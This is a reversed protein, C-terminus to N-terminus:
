GRYRNDSIPVRPMLRIVPVVDVYVDVQVIQAKQRGGYFFCFFLGSFGTDVSDRYVSNVMWRDVVTRSTATAGRCYNRMPSQLLEQPTWTSKGGRM